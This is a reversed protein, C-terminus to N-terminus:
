SICKILATSIDVFTGITAIMGFFKARGMYRKWISSKKPYPMGFHINAGGRTQHRWAKEEYYSKLRGAGIEMIDRIDGEGPKGTFILDGFPILEKIMCKIYRIFCEKEQPTWELFENIYFAPGSPEKSLGEVGKYHKLIFTAGFTEM